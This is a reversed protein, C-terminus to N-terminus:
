CDDMNGWFRVLGVSTPRFSRTVGTREHKASFARGEKASAIEPDYEIRVRSGKGGFLPCRFHAASLGDTVGRASWLVKARCTERAM